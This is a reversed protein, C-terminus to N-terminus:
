YYYNDTTFSYEEGNERIVKIEGTDACGVINGGSYSRIHVRYYNTNGSYFDYHWKGDLYYPKRGYVEYNDNIDEYKLEFEPTYSYTVDHWENDKGKKQLFYTYKGSGGSAKVTIKATQAKGFASYFYIYDTYDDIKVDPYKVQIPKSTVTNGNADTIKCKYTGAYLAAAVPKNGAYSKGDRTWQYTYPATGGKVTVKLDYWGNVTDITGDGTQETITLPAASVTATKTTVTKGNADTIVCYGTGTNYVRMGNGTLSTEKGNWYWKFKYPTTGGKVYVFMDFYGKDNDFTGGQPQSTIALAQTVTITSTDYEETSYTTTRKGTRKNVLTRPMKVKVKCYYKGLANIPYSASTAGSVATGDKYWQYSVTANASLIMDDCRKVTVTKTAGDALEFNGGDIYFNVGLVGIIQNTSLAPTSTARDLSVRNAASAPIASAGCLLVASSLVCIVKKSVNKM